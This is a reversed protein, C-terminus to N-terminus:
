NTTRQVQLYVKKDTLWVIIGSYKNPLIVEIVLLTLTIPRGNPLKIPPTNNSNISGIEKILKVPTNKM